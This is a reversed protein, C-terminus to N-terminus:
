SCSLRARSSRASGRWSKSTGTTNWAASFSTASTSSCSVWSFSSPKSIRGDPGAEMATRLTGARSARPSM